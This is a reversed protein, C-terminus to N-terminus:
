LAWREVEQSLEGLAAQFQDDTPIGGHWWPDNEM